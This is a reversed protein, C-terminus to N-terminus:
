KCVGVGSFVERFRASYKGFYCIMQGQLPSGTPNLDQDLFKIRKKPFCVADCESLALQGWKTETANNVLLVAETVGGYLCSDVLKATFASVLSGSYPPNLFVRGRWERSLGDDEKTFYKSAQVIENAKECSTPDLDIDGMVQRALCIYEPPTYWEIKGSNNAVHATM